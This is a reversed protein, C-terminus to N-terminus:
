GLPTFLANRQCHVHRTFPSNQSRSEGPGSFLVTLCRCVQRRYVTRVEFTNLRDTTIGAHCRRCSDSIVGGHQGDFNRMQLTIVHRHPDREHPGETRSNRSRGARM